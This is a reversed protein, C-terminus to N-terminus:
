YTVIGSVVVEVDSNNRIALTYNGNQDVRISKNFSGEEAQLPHFLGDPSILGIDVSASQPTYVANIEVIEGAELPFSTTAAVTEEGPVDVSFRGTARGVMLINQGEESVAGISIGLCNVLIFCVCVASLLRKIKM